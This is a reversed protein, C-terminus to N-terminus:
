KKESMKLLEVFYEGERLVHDDLLPWSNTQGGPLSCSQAGNHLQMGFDKFDKMLQLTEEILRHLGKKKEEVAKAKDLNEKFKKEFEKAKKTIREQVEPKATMALHHAHEENIHSFFMIEEVLATFREKDPLEAILMRPVSIVTKDGGPIGLDQRTPKPGGIIGIFRDTERRMHDTLEPSLISLIECCKIGEYLFVKMDRVAIAQPLAVAAPDSMEPGQSGKPFMMNVLFDMQRAAFDLNRFIPDQKISPDLGGRQFKLHESLIPLWVNMEDLIPATSVCIYENPM